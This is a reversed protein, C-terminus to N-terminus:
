LLLCIVTLARKLKKRSWDNTKLLVINRRFSFFNEGRKMQVACINQTKKLYKIAISIAVALQFCLTDTCLHWSILPMTVKVRNDNGGGDDDDDDDHAHLLLKLWCLAVM